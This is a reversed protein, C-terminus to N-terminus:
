PLAFGDGVGEGDVADGPVEAGTVGGGVGAGDVVDLGRLVVALSVTLVVVPAGVM